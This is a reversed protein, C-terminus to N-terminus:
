AQIEEEGPDPLHGGAFLAISGLFLVSLGPPRTLLRRSARRGTSPTSKKAPYPQCVNAGPENPVARKRPTPVTSNAIETGHDLENWLPNVRTANTARQAVTM